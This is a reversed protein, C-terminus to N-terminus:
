GLEWQLHFCLTIENAAYIGVGFDIGHMVGDVIEELFVAIVV